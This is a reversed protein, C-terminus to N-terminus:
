AAGELISLQEPQPAPAAVFMDPQAYAKRVRECATEFYEEDIEIGIFKMGARVAAVGTTGSGMYPDLVTMGQQLRCEVLLRSMLDVPKQTPHLKRTANEEGRCILGRWLQRHMRAPGRLNTWVLEVDANDDPTTNERKDWVIWKSADPLRSAYHNAGCLVVRPFLLLPAPDFPKDDGIIARWDVKRPSGANKLGQPQTKTRSARQTKEAVGYPPDSILADVKGLTPLVELCDGLILRCDGIIEERVIM